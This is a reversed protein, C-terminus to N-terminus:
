RHVLGAQHAAALGDAIQTALDLLRPLRMAGAQLEHRLSGGEVLELVLYPAPVDIAVDHIAVINPHNLAAAARAEAAFRERWRRDEAREEHIVKVAVDRSLRDDRARYVVGMGGRGIVDVIAFPGIRDLRPQPEPTAM